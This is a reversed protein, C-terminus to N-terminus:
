IKFICCTLDQSWAWNIHMTKTDENRLTREASGLLASFLIGSKALKTPNEGEDFTTVM